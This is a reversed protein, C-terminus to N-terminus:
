EVPIQRLTTSFEGHRREAEGGKREAVVLPTFGHGTLEATILALYQFVVDAPHFIGDGLLMRKDSFLYCIAERNETLIGARNWRKDLIRLVM